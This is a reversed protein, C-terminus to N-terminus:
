TCNSEIEELINPLKMRELYRKNQKLLLKYCDSLNYSEYNKPYILLLPKNDWIIIGLTIDSEFLNDRKHCQFDVLQCTVKM